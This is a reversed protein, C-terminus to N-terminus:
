ANPERVRWPGDPSDSVLDPHPPIWPRPPMDAAGPIVVFSTWGQGCWAYRLLQQAEIRAHKLYNAEEEPTFIAKLGADVAEEATRYGGVVAPHGVKGFSDARPSLILM